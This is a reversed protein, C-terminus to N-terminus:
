NVSVVYACILSLCLCHLLILYCATYSICSNNCPNAESDLCVVDESSHHSARPDQQGSDASVVM